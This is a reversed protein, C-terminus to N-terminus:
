DEGKSIKKEIKNDRILWIMAVFVYIFISIWQNVFSVWIAIFYAILTIKGKTDKGVANAIISNVGENAIITSQLIWFTISCLFLIIGYFTITTKAFNHLGMWKTSIPILSIWFLFHLNAWLIKGNIKTISQMLHCHNKWYIGVYVFSLVYSIFSPFIFSFDIFENGVRGNIELVMITIIIALVGDSFMELRQKDM